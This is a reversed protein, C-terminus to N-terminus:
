INFSMKAQAVRFDNVMEDYNIWRWIFSKKKTERKEDIKMRKRWEIRKSLSDFALFICKLRHFRIYSIPFFFFQLFYSNRSNQWRSIEYHIVRKRSSHMRRDLKWIFDSFEIEFIQLKFSDCKSEFRNQICERDMRVSAFIFCVVIVEISKRNLVM